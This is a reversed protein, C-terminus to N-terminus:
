RGSPAGCWAHAVPPKPEVIDDIREYAALSGQMLGQFSPLNDDSLNLGYQEAILAIDELTPAKIRM